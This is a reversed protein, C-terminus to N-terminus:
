GALGVLDFKASNANRAQASKKPKRVDSLDCCNNKKRVPVTVFGQDTPALQKTKKANM